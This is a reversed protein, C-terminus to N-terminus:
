GLHCLFYYGDIQPEPSSLAKSVPNPIALHSMSVPNPIVLSSKPSQVLHSIMMRSVLRCYYCLYSENDLSAFVVIVKSNYISHSAYLECTLRYVEVLEGSMKVTLHSQNKEMMM